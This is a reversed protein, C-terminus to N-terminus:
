CAQKLWKHPYALRLAVNQLFHRYLRTPYKQLHLLVSGSDLHGLLVEYPSSDLADPQGSGDWTFLCQALHVNKSQVYSSHLVSFHLDPPQWKHNHNLTKCLLEDLFGIQLGTGDQFFDCRQSVTVSFNQPISYKVM